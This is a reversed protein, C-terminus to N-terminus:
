DRHSPLQWRPPDPPPGQVFPRVRVEGCGLLAASAARLGLAECCEAMRPARGSALLRASAARPDRLAGPGGALARLYLGLGAEWRGEGATM